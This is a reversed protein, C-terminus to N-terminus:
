DPNLSWPIIAADCRCIQLAILKTRGFIYHFYFFSHYVITYVFVYTKKWGSDVYKNLHCICKFYMKKFLQKIVEVMEIKKQQKQKNCQVHEM